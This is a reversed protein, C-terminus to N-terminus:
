VRHLVVSRNDPMFPLIFQWAQPCLGCELHMPVTTRDFATKLDAYGSSVTSLGDIEQTVDWGGLLALAHECVAYKVALPIGDGDYQEIDFQRDIFNRPFEHENQYVLKEGAYQIKDIDSSAQILAKNKDSDTSDDWDDTNLRGDFYRQAEVITLYATKQTM